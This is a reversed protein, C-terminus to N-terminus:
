RQENLTSDGVNPGVRSPTTSSGGPNESSGIGFGTSNPLTTDQTAPGYRTPTNTDEIEPGRRPKLTEQVASYPSVTSGIDAGYDSKLTTDEIDGGVRAPLTSNSIEGGTKASAPPKKGRFEKGIAEREEEINRKARGTQEYDLRDVKDTAQGLAKLRDKLKGLDDRARVVTGVIENLTWQRSFTGLTGGSASSSPAGSSNFLGKQQVSLLIHDADDELEEIKEISDVSTACCDLFQRYRNVFKSAEDQIAHIKLLEKEESPQPPQGPRPAKKQELKKQEQKKLRAEKDVLPVCGPEKTAAIQQDPPRNPCWFVSPPKNLPNDERMEKADSAWPSILVLMLLAIGAIWHGVKIQKFNM